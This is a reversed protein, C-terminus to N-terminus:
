VVPAAAAVEQTVMPSVSTHRPPAAILKDPKVPISLVVPVNLPFRVVFMVPGVGCHTRADAVPTNDPVPFSQTM